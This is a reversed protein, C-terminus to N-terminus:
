EVRPGGGSRAGVGYTGAELGTIRFRGEDDASAEAQISADDEGRVGVARVTAGAAPRGDADVVEGILETDPIELDIRARSEDPVEVPRLAVSDESGPSLWEVPWRGAEPLYGAFEGDEDIDIPIRRYGDHGGFWLRGSVPEDGRTVSGEIEVLPISLFHDTAGAHLDIERELWRSEGQGDFAIRYSGPALGERTLIGDSPVEADDFSHIREGNASLHSWRVRWPEGWPDTPPDLTLRLEVPRALVLPDALSSELDPRAEVRILRGPAFGGARATLDYVGPRVGLFQFFGREGVEVRQRVLELRSGPPATEEGLGALDLEVTAGEPIDDGDERAVWGSISAGRILEMPEVASVAQPDVVVGFRYNPSWPPASFRLDMTGSPVRCRAVRQEVPCEVRGQAGDDSAGRPPAPEFRAEIATPGDELAGLEIPVRVEGTPYLPLVVPEVTEGATVFVEPSWYGEANARLSWLGGASLAIAETEGTTM